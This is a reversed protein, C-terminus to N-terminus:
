DGSSETEADAGSPESSGDTPANADSEGSEADTDGSETAGDSPVKYGLLDATKEDVVGTPELENDYQLWMVAAESSSGYVGDISGVDYGLDNLRQQVDRVIEGRTLPDTVQLGFPTLPEGAAEEKPDDSVIEYVQEDEYYTSRYLVGDCLYLTEGDSDVKECEKDDPLDSM